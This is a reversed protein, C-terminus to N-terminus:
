LVGEAMSELMSELLHKEGAMEAMAGDRQVSREALGRAMDHFRRELERFELLGRSPPLTDLRLEERRLAEVRQLMRAIPRTVVRDGFWWAALAGLLTIVAL